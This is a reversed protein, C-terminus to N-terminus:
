EDEGEANLADTQRLVSVAYNMAVDALDVLRGVLLDPETEARARLAAEMLLGDYELVGARLRAENVMGWYRAQSAAVAVDQERAGLAHDDGEEDYDMNNLLDVLSDLIAM